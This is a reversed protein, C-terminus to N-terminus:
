RRVKIMNLFTNKLINHIYILISPEIIYTVATLLQLLDYTPRQCQPCVNSIFLFSFRMIASLLPLLTFALFKLMVHFSKKNRKIQSVSMNVRTSNLNAILKLIGLLYITIVVFLPVTTATILMIGVSSGANIGCKNGDEHIMNRRHIKFMSTMLCAVILGTTILYVIFNKFNQTLLFLRRMYHAHLHITAYHSLAYYILVCNLWSGFIFNFPYVFICTKSGIIFLGFYSAWLMVFSFVKYAFTILQCTYLILVEVTRLQPRSKGIVVLSVVDTTFSVLYVMVALSGIVLFGNWREFESTANGKTENLYAVTAM